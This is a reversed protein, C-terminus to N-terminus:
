KAMKKGYKSEFKAKMVEWMEKKIADIDAMQVEANVDVVNEDGKIGTANFSIKVKPVQLQKSNSMERQMMIKIEMTPQTFKCHDLILKRAWIAATKPVAKFVSLQTCIRQLM